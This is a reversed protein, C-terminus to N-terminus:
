TAATEEKVKQAPVNGKIEADTQQEYKNENTNFINRFGQSEKYALIGTQEDICHHIDGWCKSLMLNHSNYILYLSDAKEQTKYNNKNVYGTIRKFEADFADVSQQLREPTKIGIKELPGTIKKLYENGNVVELLQGLNFPIAQILKKYFDIKSPLMPTTILYLAQAVKAKEDENMESVTNTKKTAEKLLSAIQEALVPAMDPQENEAAKVAGEIMESDVDLWQIKESSPAFVKKIECNDIIQQSLAASGKEKYSFYKMSATLTDFLPCLCNLINSLDSLGLNTEGSTIKEARDELLKKFDTIFQKLESICQSPIQDYGNLMNKFEPLDGPKVMGMGEGILQKISGTVEKILGEVEDKIGNYLQDPSQGDSSTGISVGKLLVALAQVMHMKIKGIFLSLTGENADKVKEILKDYPEFYAIARQTFDYKNGFCFTKVGKIKKKDAENTKIYLPTGTRIVSKIIWKGNKVPAEDALLGACEDAINGGDDLAVFHIASLRDNWGSMKSKIESLLSQADLRRGDADKPEYEFQHIKSDPNMDTLADETVDIIKDWDGYDEFYNYKDQATTEKKEEKVIMNLGPISAMASEAASVASEVANSVKSVMGEAAALGDGLGGGSPAKRRIFVVLQRLDNMEYKQETQQDPM